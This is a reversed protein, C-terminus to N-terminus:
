LFELELRLRAAGRCDKFPLPADKISPPDNSGSMAFMLPASGAPSGANLGQAERAQLAALVLQTVDASLQRVSSGTARQTPQKQPWQALQTAGRLPLRAPAMSNVFRVDVDTPLATAPPVTWLAALGASAEDCRSADPPALPPQPIFLPDVRTSQVFARATARLLAGSRGLQRTLDFRYLGNYIETRASNPCQASTPVPSAWVRYGTLPLEDRVSAPNIALWMAKPHLAPDSTPHPDAGVLCAAPVTQVDARGHVDVLTATGADLTTVTGRLPGTGCSALLAAAGLLWVGPRSSSLRSM